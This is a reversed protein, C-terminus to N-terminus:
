LCNNDPMHEMKSILGCLGSLADAIENKVGAIHHSIFNFNQARALIKPLRKNEIDCLSKNILDLLGLCDSYLEILPCYDLCYSCCSISFDLSIAEVKIPSFRLKSEKFRSCNTNAIVAGKSPDM